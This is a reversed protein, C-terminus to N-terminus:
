LHQLNLVQIDFCLIFKNGIIDVTNVIAPRDPNSISIGLESEETSSKTEEINPVPNEDGSTPNETDAEPVENYSSLKALLPFKKMPIKVTLLNNDIDTLPDIQHRLHFVVRTVPPELTYQSVVIKSVPSSSSDLLESLLISQASERSYISVDSLDINNHSNSIDIYFRKPKEARADVFPVGAFYTFVM